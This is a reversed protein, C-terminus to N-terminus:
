PLSIATKKFTFTAEDQVMKWEFESEAPANLTISDSNVSEFVIIVTATEGFWDEPIEIELNAALPENITIQVADKTVNNKLYASLSNLAGYIASESATAIEVAIISDDNDNKDYNEWADVTVVTFNITLDDLYNTFDMLYTYRMGSLWKTTLFDKLKFTAKAGAGPEEQWGNTYYCDDEVDFDGEEIFLDFEITVTADLNVAFDQPMLMLANGLTSSSLPHIETSEIDTIWDETTPKRLEYAAKTASTINWSGTNDANLTYTGTNVIDKLEISRIKVRFEYTEQVAFNVQSLLHQFALTVDKDATTKAAAILDEQDEVAPVVYDFTAKSSAVAFSTVNDEPYYAYYELTTGSEWYQLPAYTWQTTAPTWFINFDTGWQSGDTKYAKVTIPNSASTLAKLEALGTETARSGMTQKGIYASFGIKDQDGAKEVTENTCSSTAFLLSMAAMGFLIRKM